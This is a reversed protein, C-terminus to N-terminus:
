KIDKYYAFSAAYQENSAIKLAQYANQIVDAPNM